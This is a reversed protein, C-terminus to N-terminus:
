SGVPKLILRLGYFEALAPNEPFPVHVYLDNTNLSRLERQRESSGYFVLGGDGPLELCAEWAGGLLGYIGSKHKMVPSNVSAPVAYAREVYGEGLVGTEENVGGASEQGGLEPRSFPGGIAQCDNAISRWEAVTPIAFEFGPDEVQTALRVNLESVLRAFEGPEIPGWSQAPFEDGYESDKMKLEKALAWSVERDAVMIDEYTKLFRLYRQSAPSLGLDYNLQYLTFEEEAPKDVQSFLLEFPSPESAVEAGEAQGGSGGEPVIEDKGLPVPSLIPGQRGPDETSPQQPGGPANPDVGGGGEEDVGESGPLGPEPTPPGEPSGNGKAEKAGDDTDVHAVQSGAGDAGPEPEDGGKGMSAWAFLALLVVATMASLSPASLLAPRWGKTRSPPDLRPEPAPGPEIVTGGPGDDIPPPPPPPAPTEALVRRAEEALEHSPAADHIVTQGLALSGMDLSLAELEALLEKASQPRDEPAQAMCRDVLQAVGPDIGPLAQALPQHGGRMILELEGRTERSDDLLDRALVYLTVGLSYIDSACSSQAKLLTEPAMFLRTGISGQTPEYLVSSGRSIGFDVVKVVGDSTLMLNAPKIDRHLVTKVHMDVLGRSAHLAITYIQAGTLKVTTGVGQLDQGDVWEMLIYPMGSTAQRRVDYIKVAHDAGFNMGIHAENYFRGWHDRELCVKVAVWRDKMVDYGKWIQGMGGQGAQRMLLCPELLTKGGVVPCHKFPDQLM